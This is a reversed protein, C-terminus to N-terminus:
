DSYYFPQLNHQSIQLKIPLSKSPREEEGSTAVGCVCVCVGERGVGVGGSRGVEGGCVGMCVREWGVEM